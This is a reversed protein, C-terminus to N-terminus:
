RKDKPSKLAQEFEEKTIPDGLEEDVETELEISTEDSVKGEYLEEVYEKWRKAVLEEGYLIKGNESRVSNGPYRCSGFFTKVM